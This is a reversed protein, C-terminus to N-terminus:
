MKSCDDACATSRPVRSSIALVPELGFSVLSTQKLVALGGTAGPDGAPHYYVYSVNALDFRPDRSVVDYSKGVSGAM